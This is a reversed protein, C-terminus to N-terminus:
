AAAPRESAMEVTVVLLIFAAILLPRQMLHQAGVALAAGAGYAIWAIGSLRMAGPQGTRPVPLLREVLHDALRVMTSTIVVTQLPTTGFHTIAGAQLGMTAALLALRLDPEVPAITAVLLLVAAALLSVAPRGTARRLASAAM